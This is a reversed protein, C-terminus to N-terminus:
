AVVEVANMAVEPAQSTIYKTHARYFRLMFVLNWGVRREMAVVNVNEVDMEDRGSLLHKLEAECQDATLYPSINHEQCLSTFEDVSLWESQQANKLLLGGGEILLQTLPNTIITKM